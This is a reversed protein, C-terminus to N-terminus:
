DNYVGKYLKSSALETGDAGAHSFPSQEYPTRM